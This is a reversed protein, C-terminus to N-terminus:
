VARAHVRHWASCLYGKFNWVEAPLAPQTRGAADWARAVLEHEGRALVVSATWFTWSWRAHPHPVLGAAQWTGGGDASVEVRALGPDPAYAYGSVEVPGATVVQRDAPICIASTL